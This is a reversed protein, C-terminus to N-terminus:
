TAAPCMARYASKQVELKVHFDLTYLVYLTGYALPWRRRVRNRVTAHTRGHPVAAVQAVLHAPV